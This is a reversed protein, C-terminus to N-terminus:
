HVGEGRNILIPYTTQIQIFLITPLSKDQMLVTINHRVRELSRISVTCCVRPLTKQIRKMKSRITTISTERILLIRSRALKELRLHWSHKERIQSALWASCTESESLCRYVTVLSFSHWCVIDFSGGKEETDKGGKLGKKTKKKKFGAKKHCVVFDEEVCQSPLLLLNLFFFFIM